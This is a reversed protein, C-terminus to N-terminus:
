REFPLSGGHPRKGGSSLALLDEDGEGAFPNELFEAGGVQPADIWSRGLALNLM